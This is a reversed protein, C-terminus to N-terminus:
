FFTFAPPAMGHKRFNAVVSGATWVVHQHLEDWVQWRPMRQGFFEVMEERQEQTQNELTAELYDYAANVFANLAARSNLAQTTDPLSPPTGGMNSAAIYASAGAAHHIQQAFDRQGPTQADRYLREPMSDAMKTLISRQYQLMKLQVQQYYDSMAVHDPSQAVANATLAAALAALVPIHRM